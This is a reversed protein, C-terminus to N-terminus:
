KNQDVRYLVGIGVGTSVSYTLDRRLQARVPVSLQFDFRPLGAPEWDLLIQGRPELYFFALTTYWYSPLAAAFGLGGGIRVLGIGAGSALTTGAQAMIAMAAGSYGRYLFGGSADSPSVTFLDLSADLRLWDIIPFVFEISVSGGYQLKPGFGQGSSMTVTGAGGAGISFAHLGATTWFALFIFVLTRSPRLWRMQDLIYTGTREFIL